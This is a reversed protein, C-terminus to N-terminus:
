PKRRADHAALAPGTEDYIRHWGLDRGIDDAVRCAEALRDAHAVEAALAVKHTSVVGDLRVVEAQFRAVEAELAEIRDLAAYAAQAEPPINGCACSVYWDAWDKLQKLDDAMHAEM